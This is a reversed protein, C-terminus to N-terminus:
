SNKKRKKPKPLEVNINCAKGFGLNLEKLFNNKNQNEQGKALHDFKVDRKQKRRM